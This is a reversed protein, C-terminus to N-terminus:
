VLVTIKVAMVLTYASISELRVQYKFEGCDKFQINGAAVASLLALFVVKSTM